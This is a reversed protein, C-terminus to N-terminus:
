SQWLIIGVPQFLFFEEVGKGLSSSSIIAAELNGQGVGENIEEEELEGFTTIVKIM